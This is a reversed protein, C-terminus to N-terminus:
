NSVNKYYYYYTCYHLFRKDITFVLTEWNFTIGVKKQYTM